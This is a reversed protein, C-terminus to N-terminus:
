LSDTSKSIIVPRLVTALFHSKRVTNTKITTIRDKIRLKSNRETRWEATVGNFSRM